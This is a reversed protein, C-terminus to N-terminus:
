PGIVNYFIYVLIMMMVYIWVSKKLSTEIKRKLNLRIAKM